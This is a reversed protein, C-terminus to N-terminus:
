SAAATLGYLDLIQQSVPEGKRLRDRAVAESMVTKAPKAPRNSRVKGIYRGLQGTTPYDQTKADSGPCFRRWDLGFAEVDQPGYSAKLLSVATKNLEADNAPLNPDMGCCKGIAEVMGKENKGTPSPPPSYSDSLRLATRISADAHTQECKFDDAQTQTCTSASSKLHTCPKPFKSKVARPEGLNLYQLYKRGDIEYTEILGVAVCERLWEEIEGDTVRDVRLPFLRSRLVMTRADYLGFDDVVSMLRRYFVEAHFSLREVKDSDLIGERLIRNPM